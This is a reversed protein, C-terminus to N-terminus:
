KRKRIINKTQILPRKLMKRWSARILTDKLKQPTPEDLSLTSDVGFSQMKFVSILTIATVTLIGYIGLLAAAFIMVFRLVFVATKLRPVMLSCIGSLAVAILMPASVIRAEVAAQGVVLGGVISLAHGVSQPMRQGTERLIEFILTLIICELYSPFPVGRRATQVTAAFSPPLFDFHFTTLALYLAPIGVALVFSLYRLLRGATAIKYNVYYDEDAQFNESFLYPLTIVVPTADVVLAIRGELLRAAVIDPRETSGVSKFLSTKNDSIQETIYNSDLVSDMDIKSLREKLIKLSKENVLSKLFCVFVFTKTRRGLMLMSACFDPTQLRRRLMAVNFMAAEDFGERPGQLVRENEPESIGRTRWGKTNIVIAIHSNELLLLTDGYLMSKVADDIVSTRKLESAFLLKDSVFAAPSEKPIQVRARVLPKIISENILEVNVMGDFYFLCASVGCFSFERKRLISDGRFLEEIININDSLRLEFNKTLFRVRNIIQWIFRVIRSPPRM